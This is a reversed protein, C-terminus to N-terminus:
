RVRHPNGPSSVDITYPEGDCEPCWVDVARLNPLDDHWACLWWARGVPNGRWLVWPGYQTTVVAMLLHRRPCREVTAHRRATRTLGYSPSEEVMAALLANAQPRNM